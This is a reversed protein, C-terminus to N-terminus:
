EVTLLSDLSDNNHESESKHDDAVKTDLCVEVHALGMFLANGSFSIDLPSPSGLDFDPNYSCALPGATLPSFLMPGSSDTNSSAYAVTASQYRCYNTGEFRAENAVLERQHSRHAAILLEANNLAFEVDDPSLPGITRSAENASCGTCMCAERPLRMESRLMTPPAAAPLEFSPLPVATVSTASPPTFSTLPDLVATAGTVRTASVSSRLLSSSDDEAAKSEPPPMLSFDHYYPPLMVELGSEHGFGSLAMSGDATDSLASQYGYSCTHSQSEVQGSAVKPTSISAFYPLCIAASLQAPPTSALVDATKSYRQPTAM